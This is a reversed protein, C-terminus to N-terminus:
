WIYTMFLGIGEGWFVVFLTLFRLYYQDVGHGPRKVGPLSGNGTTYSAPYAVPGTQFPASFRAGCGSEFGPEELGYCIATSVAGDRSECYVIIFVYAYVYVFVYM